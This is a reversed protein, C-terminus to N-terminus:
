RDSEREELAAVFEDCFLDTRFRDVNICADYAASMDDAGLAVLDRALARLVDPEMDRVVFRLLAPREAINAAILAISAM